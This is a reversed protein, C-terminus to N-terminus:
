GRTGLLGFMAGQPDTASIFHDGGPVQMPGAVVAGGNAKISEVATDIGPVQMYYAWAPRPMEPPAKMMGCHMQGDLTCLQYTGMPGMDMADGLEWGFQECYFKGAAAIDTTLLENWSGHGVVGQKYAQSPEPRAGHMIYFMAGWPDALMAIRGVEPMDQAPMHVQGGAATISAVKADVDDVAIYGLWCPPMGADSAGPPLAMIGAVQVAAVACHRYDVPGHGAGSIDWGIVKSYFQSAANPDSTLLEYWIFNGHKDAM